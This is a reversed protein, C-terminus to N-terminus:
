AVSTATTGGGTEAGSLASFPFAFSVKGAGATIAGGGESTEWSTRRSAVPVGCSGKLATTGGGGECGVPPDNILLKIPFIRPGASTTCAGGDTSALPVFCLEAGASAGLTTAGGGDTAALAAPPAVPPERELAPVVRAAFTTAGGVAPIELPAPDRAEAAGISPGWVTTAGGGDKAACPPPVPIVAPPTPAAPPVSSALLM